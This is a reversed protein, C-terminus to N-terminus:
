GDKCEEINLMSLNAVRMFVANLQFLLNLRNNRIKENEDMVLINDFFNNITNKLASCESLIEKFKNQKLLKATVEDITKIEQYLKKEVDEILQSEDVKSPNTLNAKLLIRRIRKNSGALDKAVDKKLFDQVAIIRQDIENINDINLALM